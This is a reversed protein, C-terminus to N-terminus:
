RIVLPLMVKYRTDVNACDSDSAHARCFERLAPQPDVSLLENGVDDNVQIRILQASFPVIFQATNTQVYTDGFHQDVEFEGVSVKDVSGKQLLPHWQNSTYLPQNGVEFSQVRLMSPDPFRSALQSYAVSISMATAITLAGTNTIQTSVVVVKHTSGYDFDSTGSPGLVRSTPGCAARVCIENFVWEMRRLEGAQIRGNNNMLDDDPDSKFSSSGAGLSRCAASGREPVGLRLDFPQLNIVDSQCNALGSYLNPLPNPEFYYSDCCYEDALGFAAHGAEHMLVNPNFSEASFIRKSPYACDRLSDTHLVGGAESFSYTSGWNEPESVCPNGNGFGRAVGFDQALWFNFKDQYKLLWRRTYFARVATRADARFQATSASTYSGTAPIFTIDVKGTRPGTFLVPVARGEPPQGVQVRRYGTSIVDTGNTVDCRYAFSGGSPPAVKNTTCGNAGLCTQALANDIWIDIKDTLKSALVDSDDLSEARIQVSEGGQPWLSDHLCRVNLGPASAPRNAQIRFQVNATNFTGPGTSGSTIISQGCNGTLAGGVAANNGAVTCPGPQVSLNLERNADSTIDALDGCTPTTGCNDSDRIAISVSVLDNPNAVSVDASLEWNPTINQNNSSGPSILTLGGIRVVAFFDAKDFFPDGDFNNTADVKEIIVRLKFTSAQPTTPSKVVAPAAKPATHPHGDHALAWQPQMLLGGGVLLVCLVKRMQKIPNASLNTRINKM